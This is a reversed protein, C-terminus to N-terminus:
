ANLPGFHEKWVTNQHARWGDTISDGFFAVDINGKQALAVFGDHRDVKPTPKSATNEKKDAARATLAALALCVGLLAGTRIRSAMRHEEPTLPACAMTADVAAIAVFFPAMRQQTRIAM